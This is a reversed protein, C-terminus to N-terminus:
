SFTSTILSCVFRHPVKYEMLEKNISTKKNRFNYENSTIALKKVDFNLFFINFFYISNSIDNKSLISFEGPASKDLNDM